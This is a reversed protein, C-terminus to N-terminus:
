VNVPGYLKACQKLCQMPTLEAARYRHWVLSMKGHLDTYHKTQHRRVKHESVLRVVLPVAIAEEHLLQVLQYMPMQQRGRQNFAHHWGEVDNNTRISQGFASWSAPPWMQNDLWTARVYATFEVLQPTRAKGELADFVPAVHEEPLLPLALIKRSTSTPHTTRCTAGECASAM